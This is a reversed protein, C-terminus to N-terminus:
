EDDKSNATSVRELAVDIAREGDRTVHNQQLQVIDLILGEATEEDPDDYTELSSELAYVVWDPVEVTVETEYYHYPDPVPGDQPVVEEPYSKNASHREFKDPNEIRPVDEFAERIRDARDSMTQPVGRTAAGRSYQTRISSQVETTPPITFDRRSTQDCPSTALSVAGSAQQVLRANRRDCRGTPRTETETEAISCFRMFREEKGDKQKM